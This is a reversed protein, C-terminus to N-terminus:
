RKVGLYCANWTTEGLPGGTLTECEEALDFGHAECLARMHAPFLYRMPHVEGFTETEGTTEETVTIQYHVDVRDAEPYLTPTAVREVSQTGSQLTRVRVEPVLARVAPGHWADFVFVGGPGLHTAATEFVANLDADTTQYSMVHFLTVVADYTTGDRYTRADGHSCTFPTGDLSERASELMGESMDVGHVQHGLAMLHRAHRGTGCGLELISRADPAHKVILDHVFRAEGEYDKDQYFLDYYYAYREFASM